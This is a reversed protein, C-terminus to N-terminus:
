NSNQLTVFVLFLAKGIKRSKARDYCFPIFKKWNQAIQKSKVSTLKQLLTSNSNRRISEKMSKVLASKIFAFNRPKDSTTGM